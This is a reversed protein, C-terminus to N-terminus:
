RWCGELDGDAGREGNSRLVLTGCDPDRFQRDVRPTGPVARIEVCSRLDTGACATAHLEYASTAASAGSWWPFQGGPDPISASFAAYTNRLSHFREEEQMALVLATRGEARRSKLIYAGFTPVAVALLIAAIAVTVVLETLTFGRQAQM